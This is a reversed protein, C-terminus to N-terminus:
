MEVIKLNEESFEKSEERTTQVRSRGRDDFVIRKDEIVGEDFNGPLYDEFFLTETSFFNEPRKLYDTNREFQKEAAYNGIAKALANYEYVSLLRYVYEMVKAKKGAKIKTRYAGYIEESLRVRETESIEGYKFGQKKGISNLAGVAMEESMNPFQKMAKKINNWKLVDSKHAVVWTVFEKPYKAKPKKEEKSEKGKSYKVKSQTSSSSSVGEPLYNVSSSVGLLWYNRDVNVKNRKSIAGLYRRQISASSLIAFDKHLRSNFLGREIACGVVAEVVETSLMTRRRILLYLDHGNPVFYGENKYILQWITIMISIADSGKEAILLEMKDDFNCDLPFYDIGQKPPRAM